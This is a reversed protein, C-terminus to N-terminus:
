KRNLKIMNYEVYDMLYKRKLIFPYYDKKIEKDDKYTIWTCSHKEILELLREKKTKTKDTKYYYTLWAEWYVDDHVDKDIDPLISIALQKGFLVISLGPNWEFRYDDYKTKWGLTHFHWGLYKIDKFEKIKLAQQVLDYYEKRPYFKNSEMKNKAWELAEEVTYNVLRRPLFIPTGIKIPGFYFKLKLGKFPSNLVSLFRYKYKINSIFSM